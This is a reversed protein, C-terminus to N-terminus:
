MVGAAAIENQILGSPAVPQVNGGGQQGASGPQQTNSFSAPESLRIEQFVIDVVIMGVGQAARPYSYRAVNANEYIKEPSVITFLDTGGAVADIQEILAQREQATGGSTIRLRVEYPMEVKDYSFFSGDEVQYDAIVWEKKFDLTSFSDFDFVEAGDLLITWDNSAGFVLDLADDVLLTVPASLYSTLSPVGPVNPVFPM